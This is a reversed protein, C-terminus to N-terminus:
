PQEVDNDDMPPPATLANLVSTMETNDLGAVLTPGESRLQNISAQVNTIAADEPTSQDRYLALHETARELKVMKEQEHQRTQARDLMVVSGVIIVAAAASLGSLAYSIIKWRREAQKARVRRDLEAHIGQKIAAPIRRQDAASLEARALSRLLGFQEQIEEFQAQARPHSALYDCLHEHSATSLEGSVDLLACENLNLKTM